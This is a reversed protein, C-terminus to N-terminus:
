LAGEESEDKGSQRKEKANRPKEGQGRVTAQDQIQRSLAIIGSTDGLTMTDLVSAPVIVLTAKEKLGEYLMNMARLHLATPNDQYTRAAEEFKEAVQRESDGLIVRAQREREAQAQMSMADQLEAPILVDRIEVSSVHIGWHEARGEIIRQLELDLKERGELMEALNSRGIVERLATQAAWSVATRYDEVELAARQPDVVKWFLVAEVDVPVTDKTLTKEATFSTTIIRTDIWYAVTEVIPTIIFVGPGYLGKYKGLRLVVAKEWQNAIQLAAALYLAVVLAALAIAFFIVQGTLIFLSYSVWLGLLFLILFVAAQLPNPQKM